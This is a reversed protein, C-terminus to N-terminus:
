CRSVPPLALRTGLGFVDTKYQRQIGRRDDALEAHAVHWGGQPRNGTEPTGRRTLSNILVLVVDPSECNYILPFIAPNGTYGGDLYPTGDINVAQFILPLCASAMLADITLDKGEFIHARGNEVHYRLYFAQDRRV